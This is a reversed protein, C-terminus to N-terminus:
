LFIIYYNYNATDFKNQADELRKRNEKEKMQALAWERQQARQAKEREKFGLDEGEFKQLGSVSLRPDDDGM